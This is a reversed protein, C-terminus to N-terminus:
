KWKNNKNIRGGKENQEFIFMKIDFNNLKKNIYWNIDCKIMENRKCEQKVDNRSILSAEDSFNLLCGNDLM